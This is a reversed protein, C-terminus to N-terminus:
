EKYQDILRKLEEAQSENLLKGEMFAALFRPLSGGFSNEVFAESQLSGYQERDIIATVLANENQLIGKKCLKSLVTYTTSKKWDFRELCLQVLEGSPISEREWVLQALRLEGEAMAYQKM